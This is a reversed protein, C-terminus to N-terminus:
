AVEVGAGTRLDYSLHVRRIEDATLKAVDEFGAAHALVDVAGVREELAALRLRLTREGEGYVVSVHRTGDLEAIDALAAVIRNGDPLQELLEIMQDRPVNECLRAATDYAEWSPIDTM